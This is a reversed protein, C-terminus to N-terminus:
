SKITLTVEEKRPLGEEIEKVIRLILRKDYRCRNNERRKFTQEEM